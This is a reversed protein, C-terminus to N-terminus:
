KNDVGDKVEELKETFLEFIIDEFDVEEEKKLFEVLGHAEDYDSINFEILMTLSPVHEEMEEDSVEEPQEYVPADHTVDVQEMPNFVVLGWEQLKPAEFSVLKSNDWDGYNTNDKVVFEDEEAKTFGKAIEVPIEKLGAEKCAKLRMNGGLVVMKSNVVIPRVELMEPFEKISKVLKKFKEDTIVRPNNPNPKVKNIAIYDM